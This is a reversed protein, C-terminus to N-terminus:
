LLTLAKSTILVEHLFKAIDFCFLLLVNVLFVNECFDRSALPTLLSFLSYFALPYFFSSLFFFSSIAVSLNSGLQVGIEELSLTRTRVVPGHSWKRRNFLLFLLTSTNTVAM